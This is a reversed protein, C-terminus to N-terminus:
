APSPRSAPKWRDCTASFAAGVAVAAAVGAISGGYGGFGWAVIVPIPAVAVFTVSPLWDRLSERLLLDVALYLGPGIFVAFLVGGVLEVQQGVLGSLGLVLPAIVLGRAFAHRRFRLALSLVAAVAVLWALFTGTSPAYTEVGPRGAGDVYECRLGYPVLQTTVSPAPQAEQSHEVCVDNQTHPLTAIGSAAAFAALAVVVVRLASV